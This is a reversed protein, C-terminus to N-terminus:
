SYRGPLEEYKALKISSGRLNLDKEFPTVRAQSQNDLLISFRSKTTFTIKCHNYYRSCAISLRIRPVHANINYIGSTVKAMGLLM